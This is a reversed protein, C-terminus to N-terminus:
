NNHDPQVYFRTRSNTHPELGGDECQALRAAPVTEIQATGLQFYRTGTTAGYAGITRESSVQCVLTILQGSPITVHDFPAYLNELRLSKVTVTDYTPSGQSRAKRIEHWTV